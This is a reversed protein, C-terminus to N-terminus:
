NKMASFTLVARRGTATALSVRSNPAAGVDPGTAAFLGVFDVRSGRRVGLGHRLRVHWLM